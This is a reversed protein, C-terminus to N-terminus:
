EKWYKRPLMITKFSFERGYSMRYNDLLYELEQKDKAYDCHEYPENNYKTFIQYKQGQIPEYANPYGM